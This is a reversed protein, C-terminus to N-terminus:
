NSYFCFHDHGHRFRTEHVLLDVSVTPSLQVLYEHVSTYVDVADEGSYPSVATRFEMVPCPQHLLVSMADALVTAEANAMTACFTDPAVVILTTPAGVRVELFAPWCDEYMLAAAPRSEELVKLVKHWATAIKRISPHSM